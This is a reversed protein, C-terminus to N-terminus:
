RLPPTVGGTCDVPALFEAAIADAVNVGKETLRFGTEDVTLLGAGAMRDLLPGYHRRPHIGTKAEFQDFHIGDKLRLQLMALEGARQQPTLREVDTAPLTGSEIAAEWERLHPRNRWRHGEVHSAAAPGLGVYNGGNWYLLNHRCEEGVVAYNSIEYAIYGREALRQRTFHLMALETDEDIPVIQGLRKKVAIPTNPEYTLNYCSIHETGLKIAEELSASWSTMSQGPIAYMLDVNVRRFGATRAIEMTRWVDAPDHHRELTHLEGGDFSQAGFSLRDVGNERLMAAYESSVTAPNCEVTWETLGSFDFRERLGLLLRRMAEIPLLSPTGGGFFVTSPRLMPGRLGSAWQDAEALILEVYRQMRQSSQRTISYFDCYHCKHSCFPVHVYLGPVITAPLTKALIPSTCLEM